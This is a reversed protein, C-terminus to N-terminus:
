AAARATIPHAKEWEDLDCAIIARQRETLEGVTKAFGAGAEDMVQRFRRDQYRPQATLLRHVLVRQLCAPVEGRLLEAVSLERSKISRFIERQEERVQLARKRAAERQFSQPVNPSM